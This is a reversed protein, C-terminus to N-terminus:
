KLTDSTLLIYHVHLKFSRNHSLCLITELNYMGRVSTLRMAIDGGGGVLHETRCHIRITIPRHPSVEACCCPTPRM